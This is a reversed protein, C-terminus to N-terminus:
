KKKKKRKKAQRKRKRIHKPDQMNRFEAADQKQREKERTKWAKDKESELKKIKENAEFADIRALEARKEAEDARKGAIEALQWGMQTVFFPKELDPTKAFADDINKTYTEKLENTYKIKEQEFSLKASDISTGFFKCYRDKDIFSIGAYYYEQLMSQQLLDTNMENGPLASLYRYLTGPEWTSINEPKFVYDMIRSQSVFYVREFNNLSSIQYKKNIFYKVLIWVEAESEIQLSSRYKGRKIRENQIKSKAEEMEGWDDQSFGKIDSIDIFRIGAKTIINTFSSLSISENQFIIDLYDKFSGIKGDASLRIYGDLFLNQRYTGKVLVGRLFEISDAGYEKIFIEAWEFHEWAEKLLNNTIFVSANVCKLMKFLELTYEHDHCGIAVFHLIISSDIIWLTKKFVDQRVKRCSPDIGLLHYLFYGQSVSALYKKQPSNPEILFQYMSEMFAGRLEKDEIQIARDSLYEFVDSLEGTNASQGSYIQKSITLGRNSFSTMIAEEALNQCNEFESVTLKEYNIKLTIRLQGYAQEKETKRISQYELVKECGTTTLNINEDTKEVMNQQVLHDIAENIINQTNARAQKLIKLSNLSLIEEKSICKENVIFLGSLILPCLYDIANVGQLRRYLFLAIAAEAEEKPAIPIELRERLRNRPVIFRDATKLMHRLESHTNDNNSYPVLVINYREFYEQEDAKTFNAATMFIPRLPNGTDKAIQLVYNIDPDSLSHGVIFTDFMDFLQRLKVRFYEGSSDTFFRQYDNSTLIIEDPHNLDSHLKQIIHSAGDRLYSFDEKRNRMITYHENLKTLHTEIENDFNTTLYCAFPWKCIIEYLFSNSKNSPKLIQKILNILAIHDNGLDREAQSFLEPYQQNRLYKEYSNTDSVCSMQQLKEYTLKALKEWSPYGMECSPGSGVLVFCRGNNIMRILRKDFM